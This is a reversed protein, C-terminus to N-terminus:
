FSGTIDLIDEESATMPYTHLNDGSLDMANLDVMKIRSDQFTRFYYRSRSLDTVTSWLTTDYVPGTQDDTGRVRSAGLPIDFQHLLRFTQLVGERASEAPPTAGSFIASRVFRSPATFDGPIGLLGSGMSVPSVALGAIETPEANLPSLNVYNSLNTLQWDFSPCNTLIGTPNDTVIMEGGIHEITICDGSSDMVLFHGPPVFGEPKGLLEGFEEMVVACVRVQDLSERVEEVTAFSGLMWTSFEWPALANEYSDPTQYEVFNAFYFLAVSLGEGNVGDIVQPLGLANAGVVPYKSEWQKGPSGDPTTGTYSWGAPIVVVDSPLPVAFEMTRGRFYDGDVSETRVGTCGQVSEMIGTGMLVLVAALLRRDGM